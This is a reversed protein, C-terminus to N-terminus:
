LMQGRRRCLTNSAAHARHGPKEKNIFIQVVSRRNKGEARIVLRGCGATRDMLCDTLDHISGKVEDSLVDSLVLPKRTCRCNRHLCLNCSIVRLVKNFITYSNMAARVSSAKDRRFVDTFTAILYFETSVFATITTLFPKASIAQQQPGSYHKRAVATACTNDNFGSM